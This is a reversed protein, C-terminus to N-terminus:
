AIRCLTSNALEGGYRGIRHLRWAAEALRGREERGITSNARKPLHRRRKAAQEHSGHGDRERYMEQQLRLAPRERGRPWRAGCRERQPQQARQHDISCRERSVAADAAAPLKRRNQSWPSTKEPVSVNWVTALRIMLVDM